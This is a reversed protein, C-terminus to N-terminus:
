WSCSNILLTLFCHRINEAWTKGDGTGFSHFEASLFADVTNHQRIQSGKLEEIKLRSKHRVDILPANDYINLCNRGTAEFVRWEVTVGDRNACV